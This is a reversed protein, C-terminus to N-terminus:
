SRANNHEECVTRIWGGSTPKGPKGCVECTRYSMSEAMRVVGDIFDDGGRYYFRLGGFKEKVQVAIVQEVPEPVDRKDRAKWDEWDEFNNAEAEEVQRNWKKTWEIREAVNDIHGQINACAADLIDYWGDGVAIGWYMCTKSPDEHRDRFILPYKECLQKDLEERM